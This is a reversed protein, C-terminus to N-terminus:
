RILLRRDSLLEIRLRRSSWLFLNPKILDPFTLVNLNIGIGFGWPFYNRTDKKTGRM